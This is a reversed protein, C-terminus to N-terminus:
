RKVGYLIRAKSQLDEILELNIFGFKNFLDLVEKANFENLELYIRGGKKLHNFSYDHILKYFFLADQTPSFLAMHPEFDLVQKSLKNREEMAIYPPNSIIVDFLDTHKWAKKNSFDYCDFELNVENLIANEKATKIANESADMALVHHQKMYKKVTIAICGSGTGIDLFKLDTSDKEKNIILAVLEETEPRPILVSPDVKFKLGYFDAVGMVYQLPEGLSLRGIIIDLKLSKTDLSKDSFIDEWLIKSISSLERPDYMGSLQKSIKQDIEERNL